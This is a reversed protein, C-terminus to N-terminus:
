FPMDDPESVSAPRTAGSSAGSLADGPARVIDQAVIQPTLRETGESDTWRNMRLDGFVVVREGKQVEEIKSIMFDSFGVVDYWDTENEWDGSDTKRGRSVAVSFKGFKDSVRQGDGGANGIVTAKSAYLRM